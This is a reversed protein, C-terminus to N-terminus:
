YAVLLLPALLARGSWPGWAAEVQGANALNGVGMVLMFVTLLVFSVMFNLRVAARFPSGQPPRGRFGEDYGIYFSERDRM